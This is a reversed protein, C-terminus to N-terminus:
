TLDRLSAHMSAALNSATCRVVSDCAQAVAHPECDICLAVFTAGDRQQQGIFEICQKEAYTRGDTIIFVVRRHRPYAEAHMRERILAPLMMTGGACAGRLPTASTVRGVQKIDRLESGFGIIESPCGLSETADAITWAAHLCASYRRRMSSSDDLLITVKTNVARDIARRNFASVTQGPSVGPLTRRDIRHGSERPMSWRVRDRAILQERLTQAIRMADRHVESFTMNGRPEYQKLPTSAEAIQNAMDWGDAYMDHDRAADRIRDLGDTISSADPDITCDKSWGRGDGTDANEQDGSQDDGADSQDDGADSQDDGPQDGDGPQDDGPEPESEPKPTNEDNLQEIARLVATTLYKAVNLAAIGGRREVKSLFRDYPGLDIKGLVVWGEACYPVRDPSVGQGYWCVAHAAQDFTSLQQGSRDANICAERIAAIPGVTGPLEHCSKAEIRVDEVANFMVHQHQSLNQHRIAKFSQYRLHAVEHDFYGRLILAEAPNLDAKIGPLWVTKGDTRPSGSAVNLNSIGATAQAATSLVSPTLTFQM